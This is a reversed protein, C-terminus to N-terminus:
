ALLDMTHRRILTLKTRTGDRGKTFTRGICWLPEHIDLVDDDIDVLSNVHWPVDNRTHGRVTYTVTLARKQRQAMQRRVFAELQGINKSEEDKLYLPRTTRGAWEVSYPLLEPRIPLVRAGPYKNIAAQVDDRAFGDRTAGTLENVMACKITARDNVGGGGTGYAIIVCPQDAYDFSGDYDEADTFGDRQVIRYPAPSDFDPASVIVTDGAANLWIQYGFRKVLRACFEFCGEGDHPKMQDFTMSQLSKPATPDYLETVADYHIVNGNAVFAAQGSPTDQYTGDAVNAAPTVVRQGAKAPNVGTLARRNFIDTTSFLAFGFPGFVKQFVDGMTMTPKFVWKPDCVADVVPSLKDRGAFTATHGGSRGGKLNPHDVIGTAQVLGNVVFQVETGPRLKARLAPIISKDATGLSWGDTPTLFESDHSYSTWFQVREGTGPILLEVQDDM